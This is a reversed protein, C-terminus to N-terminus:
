EHIQILSILCNGLFHWHRQMNSCARGWVVLLSKKGASRALGLGCASVPYTILWFQGLWGSLRRSDSRFEPRSM